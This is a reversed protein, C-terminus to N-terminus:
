ELLKKDSSYENSEIDQQLNRYKMQLNGAQFYIQLYVHLPCAQELGHGKVERTRQGVVREEDNAAQILTSGCIEM